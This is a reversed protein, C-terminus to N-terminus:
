GVEPQRGGAAPTQLLGEPVFQKRFGHEQSDTRCQLRSLVKGLLRQTEISVCCSNSPAVGGGLCSCSKTAKGPAILGVNGFFFKGPSGCLRRGRCLNFLTSVLAQQCCTHSLSLFHERVIGCLQCGLVNGAKPTPKRFM